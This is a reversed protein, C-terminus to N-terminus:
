LVDIFGAFLVQGDLLVVLEQLGTPQDLAVLLSLQRPAVRGITLARGGLTAQIAGDVPALCRSLLWQGPAVQGPMAFVVGRGLIAQATAEVDVPTLVGDGDTDSVTDAVGVSTALRRVDFVTRAGSGDIDGALGGMVYVSGFVRGPGSVSVSPGSGLGVARVQWAAANPIVACVEVSSGDPAATVKATLRFRASSQAPLGLDGLSVVQDSGPGVPLPGAVLQDNSGIPDMRIVRLEDVNAATAGAGTILVRLSEVVLDRDTINVLDFKMLDVSGSAVLQVKPEAVPEVQMAPGLDSVLDLQLVVGDEVGLLQPQLGGPAIPFDPSFTYGAIVALGSDPFDVAQLSDQGVGGFYSSWSLTSGDNTLYSAFGDTVGFGFQGQTADPTLPFGEGAEGVVMMGLSSIDLDRVRDQGPGGLLTSFVLSQGQASVRTIFGDNAGAFSQQPATLTAPYNVSATFGGLWVSGDVDFQVTQAADEGIGGMYTSFVAVSATADLRTLVADIDGGSSPRVVSPTTPYDAGLSWGAVALDGSSPDRDVGLIQESFQGGLFTGFSFTQCDKSVGLVFGDSQALFLGGLAPQFGGPPIPMDNSTTWGVVIANGGPDLEVDEVVDDFLGGAYTSGLLSDGNASLRSVFGDGIGIFVSAGAYAPQASGQTVPFDLSNTFGVVTATLDPAVALGRVQDSNSGGLYSAFVLSQGDDALRAVMADAGGITQFAGVTVPFDMSGTWGGVWVGSGPRWQMDHIRDTLGGGLHTGWVVGPDVVTALTPNLQEAVFGYRRAGLLRFAVEVPEQGTATEQWAIPTQQVLAQEGQPTMVTAVLRGLEDVRLREVGECEVEFSALDAGPALLLDYEFPGRAAARGGREPLPRFLVDIGPHVQMMTVAEFSPVNSVHQQPAGRLFNHKTAFQRGAVFGQTAAGVFRSRVVAGMCQRVPDGSGEETWREFRLTYGDDHLWAATDGLAVYRVGGSTGAWQGQNPVFQLQGSRALELSPQGDVSEDFGTSGISLPLLAAAAAVAVLVLSIIRM